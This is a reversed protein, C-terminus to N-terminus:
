FPLSFLGLNLEKLYAQGGNVPKWSSTSSGIKVCQERSTLFSKIWRIIVPSVQLKLLEDIIVNHDFLDFGKKFDAFFIRVSCHGQDLAAHIVHLLYVLAQTTSKGPLAFQKPDLKHCVESMLSQLMYGEMVKSVQATLSTPRLDDEITQPPSVKPIPVVISRKLQDPFVDLLVSTNYIDM